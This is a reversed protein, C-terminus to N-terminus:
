KNTGRLCMSKEFRVFLYIIRVFFYGTDGSKNEQCFRENLKSNEVLSFLKPLYKCPANRDFSDNFLALATVIRSRRLKPDLVQKKDVSLAIDNDEFEQTTLTHNILQSIAIDALDQHSSWM